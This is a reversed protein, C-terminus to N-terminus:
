IECSAIVRIGLSSVAKKISLAAFVKLTDVSNFFSAVKSDDRKLVPSGSWHPQVWGAEASSTNVSSSLACNVKYGMLRVHEHRWFFGNELRFFVENPAKSAM